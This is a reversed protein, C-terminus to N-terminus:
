NGWWRASKECAGSKVHTSTIIKCTSRSPFMRIPFTQIKCRIYGKDLQYEFYIYFSQQSPMTVSHNNLKQKYNPLHITNREDTVKPNWKEKLRIVNMSFRIHFIIYYYSSFDEYFTPKLLPDHVSSVNAPNYWIHRHIRHTSKFSKSNLYAPM